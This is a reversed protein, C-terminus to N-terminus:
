SHPLETWQVFTLKVVDETTELYRRYHQLEMSDITIQEKKSFIRDWGARYDETAGKSIIADGTIDNRSM